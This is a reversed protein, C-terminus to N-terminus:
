ESVNLQCSKIGGLATLIIQGYIDVIGSFMHTMHLNFLIFESHLEVTQRKAFPFCLVM